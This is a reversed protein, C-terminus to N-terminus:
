DAFDPCDVSLIHRVQYMDGVTYSEAIAFHIPVIDRRYYMLSQPTNNLAWHDNLDYNLAAHNETWANSGGYTCQVADTWNGGLYAAEWPLLVNTLNSLSSDVIRESLM